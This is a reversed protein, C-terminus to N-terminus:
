ADALGILGLCALRRGWTKSAGKKWNTCLARRRPL